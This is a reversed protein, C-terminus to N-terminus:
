RQGASPSRGRSVSPSLVTSRATANGQDAVFAELVDYLHRAWAGKITAPRTFPWRRERAAIVWAAVSFEGHLTEEDAARAAELEGLLALLLAWTSMLTQRTLAPVDRDVFPLLTAHARDLDGSYILALALNNARPINAGGLRLARAFAISASAADGKELRRVGARNYFLALSGRALSLQQRAFLLESAVFPLFVLADGSWVALALLGLPLAVILAALAAFKM